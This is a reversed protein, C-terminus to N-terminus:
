AEGRATQVLESDAFEARSFFRSVELLDNWRTTEGRFISKGGLFDQLEKSSMARPLGTLGRDLQSLLHHLASDASAGSDAAADAIARVQRGPLRTHVAWADEMLTKFEELLYPRCTLGYHPSRRTLGVGHLERSVEPSTHQTATVVEFDIYSGAERRAKKKALRTLDEALEYAKAFPYHKKVIAVGACAHVVGDAAGLTGALKKSREEFETLLQIVLPFAIRGECVLTLDDGGMVLPRFPLYGRALRLKWRGDAAAMIDGDIQGCFHEIVARAPAESLAALGASLERRRTLQSVFDQERSGSRRLMRGIDNGDMHIVALYGGDEGSLDDVDLPFQRDGAARQFRARLRSNARDASERLVRPNDALRKDKNDRGSAAEGTAVCRAIFPPTFQVRGRPEQKQEAHHLRLKEWAAAFAASDWGELEVHSALLNLGPLEELVALSLTEILRRASETNPALGHVAGGSNRLLMFSGPGPPQGKLDAPEVPKLGCVQLAQGLLGEQEGIAEVLASGGALDRLRGGATLFIQIRAAEVAVLAPKGM